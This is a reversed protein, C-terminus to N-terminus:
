ALGYTVGQAPGLSSLWGPSQEEQKRGQKKNNVAIHIIVQLRQGLATPPKLGSAWVGRAYTAIFIMAVLAWCLMGPSPPWLRQLEFSQYFGAVRAMISSKCNCWTSQMQVDVECKPSELFLTVAEPQAKASGFIRKITSTKNVM